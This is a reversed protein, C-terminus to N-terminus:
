NQFPQICGKNTQILDKKEKYEPYMAGAYGQKVAKEIWERAKSIDKEGGEGYYYMLGFLHKARANNGKKAAKEIWERAEFLDQEGGIGEHYMVGLEVQAPVYGKLAAKKVWKRAEFLDLDVGQRGDRYLLGLIYEASAHDGGIAEDKLWKIGLYRLFKDKVEGYYYKSVLKDQAPIYGQDAAELMLSGAKFFNEEGGEGSYYMEAAEYQGPAYDKKASKRMWERAKVFSKEVGEGKYFAMAIKFYDGAKKVEPMFKKKSSRFCEKVNLSKCLFYESEIFSRLTQVNIFYLLNENGQDLVGALQHSENLVPSGSAGSLNSYRELHAFPLRLRFGRAGPLNSHKVFLIEETFVGTESIEKLEGGSYGLTYLKDSSNLVDEAPLNLFHDVSGEIELVALDELVSLSVIRKVKLQEPNGEQALTVSGLGISEAHEIVHFNTVIQNKSIFFGSGKVKGIQNELMLFGSVKIHIKWVAKAAQERSVAAGESFAASFFKIGMKSKSSINLSVSFCLLIFSLKVARLLSLLLADYLKQILVQNKIMPKINM